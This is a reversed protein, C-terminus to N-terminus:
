LFLFPFFVNLPFFPLFFFSYPVVLVTRSRARSFGCFWSDLEVDQRSSLDGCHAWLAASYGSHLCVGREREGDASRSWLELGLVLGLVIDLSSGCFGCLTFECKRSFRVM